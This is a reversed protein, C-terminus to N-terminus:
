FVRQAEPLWSLDATWFRYEPVISTYTNSCRSLDDPKWM